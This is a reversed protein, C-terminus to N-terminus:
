SSGGGVTNAGGAANNVPTTVARYVNSQVNNSSSTSQLFNGANLADFSNGTIIGSGLNTGVVVGLSNSITNYGTFSNGVISYRLTRILNIAQATGTAPGPVYFTCGNVTLDAIETNTNIGSIFCNFQSNSVALQVLVNLGVASNIGYKCGTLQVQTLFIGQVYDGYEIGVGLFNFTCGTLNFVVPPLAVSGHVYLGTGQQTNTGTGMVNVLNVNSVFQIEIQTAFYKLNGAGDAGCINVNTIDSLQTNAPNPISVATNTLKIAPNGTGVAGALVTFDRLRVSHYQDPLTFLMGQNTPFLFTTNNVGEGEIHVSGAVSLQSSCLYIGAPVFLTRGKVACYVLAANLAASDDHIGDGFALFPFDKASVCDNIRNFLKTGAAVAADLISGNPPVYLSLTTGTRVYVRQVGVPIAATFTLVNGVLSLIQDGGQYVGDFYVSVNGINGPARSLTLSASVGATFDAGAVFGPKGDSGLEDRLDGAGVSASIPLTAVNGLADFGFLTGARTTSPPLVPSGSESENLVIARSVNEALQQIQITARDVMDEIVQPYFGGSNTIDTPQLDALAGLMVLQYGTPIPTGVIPYTISGGPNTDQNSNLTVSYDSDLTLTRSTGGATLVTIVKIDTKTFVKFGFPFVTTAGNGSFPGAKRTTSSITLAPV